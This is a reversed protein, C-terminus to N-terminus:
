RFNSPKFVFPLYVDAILWGIASNNLVAQLQSWKGPSILSPKVRNRM